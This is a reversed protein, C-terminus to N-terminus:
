KNIASAMAKAMQDAQQKLRDEEFQDIQSMIVGKFANVNKIAVYFYESGATVINITGYNFVRGWFSQDIKVGQIKNLPADMADVRIVGSKGILRKNTVGLEIHCFKVTAIIAKVLPILLLWCFLIGKVWAWVLFLANLDAMKVISENRDLNKEVYTGM